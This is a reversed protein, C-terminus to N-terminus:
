ELGELTDAVREPDIAGVSRWLESGDRDLMVFTPTYQFRYRQMLPQSSADQINLRIVHLRDGYDESIGDVIPKIAM